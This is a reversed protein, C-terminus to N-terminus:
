FSLFMRNREKSVAKAMSSFLEQGLETLFIRNKRGDEPDKHIVIWKKQEMTRLGRTMSPRDEFDKALDIQSCGPSNHIRVLVFWQEPYLDYGQESSIRIFQRRLARATRYIMYAYSNDLDFQSKM